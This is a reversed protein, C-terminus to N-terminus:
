GGYGSKVTDPIKSLLVDKTWRTLKWTEGQPLSPIFLFPFEKKYCQWDIRGSEAGGEIRVELLVKLNWNSLM